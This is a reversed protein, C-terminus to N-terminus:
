IGAYGPYMNIYDIASKLTEDFGPVQNQRSLESAKQLLVKVQAKERTPEDWPKNLVFAEYQAVGLAAILHAPADYPLHTLENVLTRVARDPQGKRGGWSSSYLEAFAYDFTKYPSESYNRYRSLRTLLTSNYRYGNFTRIVAAHEIANHSRELTKELPGDGCAEGRVTPTCVFDISTLFSDAFAPAVLFLLGGLM